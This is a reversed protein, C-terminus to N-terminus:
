EFFVKAEEYLKKDVTKTKRTVESLPV